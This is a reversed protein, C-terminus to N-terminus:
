HTIKVDRFYGGALKNFPLIIQLHDDRYNASVKTVDVDFPLPGSYINVPIKMKNIGQGSTLLYFVRISRNELEIRFSEATVGSIRIDAKYYGKMKMFQVLPASIGGGIVDNVAAMRALESILLNGIMM